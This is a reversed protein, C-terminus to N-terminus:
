CKKLVAAMEKMYDPRGPVVKVSQECGSGVVTMKAQFFSGMLQVEFGKDTVKGSVTGNLAYINDNWVGTVQAGSIQLRTAADFKFNASQCRLNQKVQTSSDSMFYTIVCRFSESPGSPPTVTGQGQWRGALHVLSAPEDAAHLSALGPALLFLACAAVSAAFRRVM